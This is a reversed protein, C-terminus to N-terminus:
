VLGRENGRWAGALGMVLGEGILSVMVLGEVRARWWWAYVRICECLCM